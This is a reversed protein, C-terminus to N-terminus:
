LQDDFLSLRWIDFTQIEAVNLKLVGMEQGIRSLQTNFEYSEKIVGNEFLIM